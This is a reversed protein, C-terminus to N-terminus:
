WRRIVLVGNRGDLGSKGDEIWRSHSWWTYDDNSLRDSYPDACDTGINYPLVGSGILQQEILETISLYLVGEKVERATPITRDLFRLLSWNFNTYELGTKLLHRHASIAGCIFAKYKGTRDKGMYDIMADIVSIHERGMEGTAVLTRDLLSDRGAHAAVTTGTESDHLVVVACDATSFYAGSQKGNEPEYVEVGEAIKGGLALLIAQSGCKKHFDEKKAIAANFVKPRPTYIYSVGTDETADFVQHFFNGYHEPDDGLKRDWNHPKGYMIIHIRGGFPTFVARPEVKM